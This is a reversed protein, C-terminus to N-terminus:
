RFNKREILQIKDLRNKHRQSAFPTSLWLQILELIQPTEMSITRAGLCLINADNHERSLKCSESDWVSAARVGPFKNSVICMGIGTGCIAIGADVQKHAVADALHAAFDPYDVSQTAATHTGFDQVQLSLGRLFLLVEDKLDKGAHDAALGVKSFAMSKSM